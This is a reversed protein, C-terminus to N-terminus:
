GRAPFDDQTRPGSRWKAIRLEATFLRDDIQYAIEGFSKEGSTWVEGGRSNSLKEQIGWRGTAPEVKLTM